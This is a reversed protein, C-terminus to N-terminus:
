PKDLFLIMKYENIDRIFNWNKAVEGRYEIYGGNRQWKELELQTWGQSNVPEKNEALKQKNIFEQSNINIEKIKKRVLRVVGELRAHINTNNKNVKHELENLRKNLKTFMRDSEVWSLEEEKIINTLTNLKNEMEILKKTLCKIEKGHKYKLKEIKNKSM